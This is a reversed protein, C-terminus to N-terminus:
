FTVLTTTATIKYIYRHNSRVRLITLQSRLIDSKDRQTVIQIGSMVAEGYMGQPDIINLGHYWFVQFSPLTILNISDHEWPCFYSNLSLKGGSCHWSSQTWGWVDSSSQKWKACPHGNWRYNKCPIRFSIIFCCEDFRRMCFDWKCILRKIWCEWKMCASSGGCLNFM